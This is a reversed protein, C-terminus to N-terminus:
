NRRRSISAAAAGAVAFLGLTGLTQFAGQLDSRKMLERLRGPEIPSRYWKVRLNKRVEELPTRRGLIPTSM